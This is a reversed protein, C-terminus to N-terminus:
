PMMMPLATCTGGDCLYVIELGGVLTISAIDAAPAIGGFTVLGRGPIAVTTHLARPQRLPPRTAAQTALGMSVAGTFMDITNGAQMSLGNFGGSVAVRGDQLTAIAGFAHANSVTTPTAVGTMANITFSRLSAPTYPCFPDGSSFGPMGSAGCRPGYWGVVLAHTGGGLVAALPRVLSLEPRSTGAMDPFDTAMAAADTSGLVDSGTGARWVEALDDNSTAAAGGLIWGRQMAGTGLTVAGPMERTTDLAGSGVVGYGGAREPDYVTFSDPASVGGALLVRGGDLLTAAHLVRAADLRGPEAPDDAAGVFGGRGPDGDRDVDEVEANVRPDFLEFSTGGPGPVVRFQFGGDQHEFVLTATEAGGALLVTGDPLLTATHGGRSALMPERTARVRGTAPDFLAADDSATAQFCAAAPDATGPPCSSSVLRDFGGAFLVRGDRLTTATHLFRPPLATSDLPAADNVPYMRIDIYRREGHQLVFPGAHGVYIPAASANQGEITIHVPRGPTLEGIDLEPRGNDDLDELNAVTFSPDRPTEGEVEILLKVLAVDGPLTASPDTLGWDVRMVPGEAPAVCGHAALSLGFFLPLLALHRFRRSPV